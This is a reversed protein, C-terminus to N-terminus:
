PKKELGFPCGALKRVIRKEYTKLLICRDCPLDRSVEGSTIIKKLERLKKKLQKNSSTKQFRQMPMKLMTKRIKTQLFEM